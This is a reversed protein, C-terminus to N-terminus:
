GRIPTRMRPFEVIWRIAPVHGNAQTGRDMASSSERRLRANGLNGAVGQL